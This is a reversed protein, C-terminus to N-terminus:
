FIERVAAAHEAVAEEVLRRGEQALRIGTRRGQAGSEVRDVLGRAEMRTLQHAVRSKDWGLMGALEVVRMEGAAAGRLTVLVSFEAKSIGFRRQLRRDIELVLQRQASMWRDWFEWDKLSLGGANEAM